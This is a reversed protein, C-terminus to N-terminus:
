EDSGGFESPDESGTPEEDADEIGGNEITPEAIPELIVDGPEEDKPPNDNLIGEFAEMPSRLVDSALDSAADVVDGLEDMAESAEQGINEVAESVSEVTESIADAAEALEIKLAQASEKYTTGDQAILLRAGTEDHEKSVIQVIEGDTTEAPFGTM